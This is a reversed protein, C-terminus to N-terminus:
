WVDWSSVFPPVLDSCCSARSGRRMECGRGPQGQKETDEFMWDATLEQTHRARCDPIECGHTCTSDLPLGDAPASLGRSPNLTAAGEKLTRSAATFAPRPDLAAPGNGGEVGQSCFDSSNTLILLYLGLLM